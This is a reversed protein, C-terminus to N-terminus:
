RSGALTSLHEQTFCASCTKGWLSFTRSEKYVRINEYGKNMLAKLVPVAVRFGDIEVHDGDGKGAVLDQIKM